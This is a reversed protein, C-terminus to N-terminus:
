RMTWLPEGNHIEEMVARASEASMGFRECGLEMMQAITNLSRIGGAAKILAKEAIADKMIKIMHITTPEKSWGTGSKVFTAGARVSIECAKAIEYDSLYSAEIIVKVPIANSVQIVQKIDEFVYDYYGSKLMGYAMVMDLELCGMLILEKAQEVKSFTSDCGTPFGVVGGPKIMPEERLSEIIYPTYCPMAFVSIFQYKKAYSLMTDIEAKTHTSKVCSIDIHRHLTQIFDPKMKPIVEIDEKCPLLLNM